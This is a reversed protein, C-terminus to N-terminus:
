SHRGSGAVSVDQQMDQVQLAFSAAELAHAPLFRHLEEKLVKCQSSEPMLRFCAPKPGNLLLLMACLRQATLEFTWLNVNAQHAPWGETLFRQVRAM